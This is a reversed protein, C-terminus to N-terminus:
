MALLDRLRKRRAFERLAEDRRGLGTVLVHGLDRHLKAVLKPSCAGQESSCLDLAQVLTKTAQEFQTGLYEVM